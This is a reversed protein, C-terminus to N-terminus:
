RKLNVIEEIISDSVTVVRAGAQFSRQAVILNAFEQTLDTNSQELAGSRINGLGNTGPENNALTLTTGGVAGASDIGSYLSNGEANLGQPDLFRQLLITSSTFSSGDSLQFIVDGQVNISFNDFTPDGSSAPTYAIQIDGITSPATSPPAGGTLGQVRFGDSNVIYGTDDVRFNGARTVFNEGNITDRVTFFGEGTIALDTIIGTEEIPGQNFNSSIVNTNVGTGVQKSTQNSGVGTGPNPSSRQLTNSFSDAYEVRSVKFGASNVNAINNGVVKMGTSFAKIASVGTNLSEILAM